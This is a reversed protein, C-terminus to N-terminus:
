ALTKLGVEVRPVLPRLGALGESTIRQEWWPDNPRECVPCRGITGHRGSDWVVVAGCWSHQVVRQTGERMAATPALQLGLAELDFELQMM